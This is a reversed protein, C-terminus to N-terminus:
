IVEIAGVLILLAAGVSVAAFPTMVFGRSLADGPALGHNGLEDAPRDGIAEEHQQRRQHHGGPTHPRKVLRWEVRNGVQGIHLYDNARRKWALCRLNDLILDGIRQGRRHQRHWSRLRHTAVRHEAIREDVNQELVAGIRVPRARAHKLIQVLDLRAQRRLGFRRESRVGRAHAPDVLVRQDIARPLHVQRLQTRQLIPEQLVLQLRHGINGFDCADAAHDALILDHEIRIPQAGVVNRM